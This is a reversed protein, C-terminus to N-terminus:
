IIRELELKTVVEVPKLRYEHGIVAALRLEFKDKWSETLEVIRRLMEEESTPFEVEVGGGCDPWEAINYALVYKDKSV